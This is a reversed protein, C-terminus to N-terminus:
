SFITIPDTLSYRALIAKLVSAATAAAFPQWMKHKHSDAYDCVGKIIMCPVEDWVGAGEMEFAIVNRQKAIQDRHEGSKMVTDGSAVCGILIEPLQAYDPDMAKKAELRKRPMLQEEDCQLEVCSAGAAEDCFSDTEISCNCTQLGRHKHRYTAAFLKDQEAGPYQYSNRHGEQTAARQLDKLYQGAKQQMIGLENKLSAILMRVIKSPPGLNDHITNKAIFAGPYQRGLTYQIAANSIVVDGLLVENQGVGPVGGCIGVLFAIKLNYFSSRLSAASGAGAAVGMNPLLALVVNHSGIRGTTYVNTDGQARGFADGDEDWFQDFLLSVADCELPLACIIAVHFDERSRPPGQIPVEDQTEMPLKEAKTQGHFPSYEFFSGGNIQIGAANNNNQPGNGTTVNQPGSGHNGISVNSPM